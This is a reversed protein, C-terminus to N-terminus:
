VLIKMQYNFKLISFIIKFVDQFEEKELNIDYNLRQSGFEYYQYLDELYKQDLGRPDNIKNLM